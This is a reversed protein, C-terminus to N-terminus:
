RGGERISVRNKMETPVSYRVFSRMPRISPSKAFSQTFTSSAGGKGCRNCRFVNDRIKVNMHAKRDACFPCRCHLQTGTDRIVEIGLLDVVQEIDCPLDPTRGM